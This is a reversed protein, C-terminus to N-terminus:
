VAKVKDKDRMGVKKGVWESSGSALDGALLDAVDEYKTNYKGFILVCLNLIPGIWPIKFLWTNEWAPPSTHQVLLNHGRPEELLGFVTQKPDTPNMMAV